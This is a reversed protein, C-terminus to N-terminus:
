TSLYILDIIDINDILKVVFLFMSKQQIAFFVTATERCCICAVAFATASQQVFAYINQLACKNASFDIIDICNATLLIM